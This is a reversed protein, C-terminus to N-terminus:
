MSTENTDGLTLKGLLGKGEPNEVLIKYANTKQGIRAVHGGIEDEM